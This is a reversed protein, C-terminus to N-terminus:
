SKAQPSGSESVGAFRSLNYDDRIVRTLRLRAARNKYWVKLFNAFM